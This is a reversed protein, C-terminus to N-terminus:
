FQIGSGAGATIRYNNGPVTAVDSAGSVLASAYHGSGDAGQVTPHWTNGVATVVSSTAVSISLGVGAASGLLTNDGHSGATGLDILSGTFSTGVGLQIAYYSGSISNGRATLKTTTGFVVVGVGNTEPTITNSTVTVSAGTIAEVGVEGGELTNSVVTAAAGCVVISEDTNTTVIHFGSVSAGSATSPIQITAGSGECGGAGEGSITTPAAGLGLNAVDGVLAQGAKLTIPFAEGATYTGPAVDIEIAGSPVTAVAHSITRWPKALTGDYSDMGTSANVYYKTAAPASGDGTGADCACGADAGSEPAGGDTEGSDAGGAEPTGAETAGGDTTSSDGESSGSSGDNTAGQM